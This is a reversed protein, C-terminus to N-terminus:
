VERDHSDATGDYSIFGSRYNEEVNRLPDKLQGLYKDLPHEAIINRDNQSLNAMM